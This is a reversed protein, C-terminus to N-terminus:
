LRYKYGRWLAQFKTIGGFITKICPICRKHINKYKLLAIMVCVGEIPKHCCICDYYPIQELWGHHGAYLHEEYKNEFNRVIGLIYFRFEKIRWNIFPFTGYGSGKVANLAGFGLIILRGLDDSKRECWLAATNKTLINLESCYIHKFQKVYDDIPLWIASSSSGAQHPPTTHQRHLVFEQINQIFNHVSGKWEEESDYKTRPVTRARKEKELMTIKQTALLLEENYLARSCQALLEM